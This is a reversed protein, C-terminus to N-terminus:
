DNINKQVEKNKFNTNYSQAFQKFRLTSLDTKRQQLKKQHEEIVDTFVDPYVEYITPMASKDGLCRAVYKGIVGALIYDFSAQEQRQVQMRKIKSRVARQVEAPTM